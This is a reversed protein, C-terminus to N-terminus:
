SLKATTPNHNTKCYQIAIFSGAAAALLVFFYHKGKM